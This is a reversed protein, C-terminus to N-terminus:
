NDGPSFILPMGSTLTKAGRPSGRMGVGVEASGRVLNTVVPKTGSARAPLGSSSAPAGRRCPPLSPLSPLSKVANAAPASSLPVVAQDPPEPLHGQVSSGLPCRVLCPSRRLMPVARRKSVAGRAAVPAPLLRNLRCCFVPRTDSRCHLLLLQEAHTGSARVDQCISFM